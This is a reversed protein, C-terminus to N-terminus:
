QHQIQLTDDEWRAKCHNDQGQESYVIVVQQDGIPIFQKINRPNIEKIDKIKLTKNWQEKINQKSLNLVDLNLFGFCKGTFFVQKWYCM